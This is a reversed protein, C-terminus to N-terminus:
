KKVFVRTVKLKGYTKPNTCIISFLKSRVWEHISDDETWDLFQQRMESLVNKKQTMSTPGTWRSATPLTADSHALCLLSRALFGGGLKGNMFVDWWLTMANQSAIGLDIIIDAADASTPPGNAMAFTSSPNARDFDDTATDFASAAAVSKLHPTAMLPPSPTPSDSDINAVDVDPPFRTPSVPLLLQGDVPHFTAAQTSEPLVVAGCSAGEAGVGFVGPRFGSPFQENSFFTASARVYPKTKKKFTPPKSFNDGDSSLSLCDGTSAAPIGAAKPIPAKATSIPAAAKSILAKATSIPARPPNGIAAAAQARNFVSLAAKGVLRSPMPTADVASAGAAVRPSTVKAKQKKPPVSVGQDATAFSKNGGRKKAGRESILSICKACNGSFNEGPFYGCVCRSNM